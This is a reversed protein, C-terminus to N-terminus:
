LFLPIDRWDVVERRQIRQGHWNYEAGCGPCTNRFDECTLETGCDCEWLAPFKRFHPVAEVGRCVIGGERELSECVIFNHRTQENMADWDPQGESDCPFWFGAGPKVIWEYFLVYDTRREIMIDRLKRM